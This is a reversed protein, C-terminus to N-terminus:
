YPDHGLDHDEICIIGKRDNQYVVIAKDDFSGNVNISYVITADKRPHKCDGELPNAGASMMAGKFDRSRYSEEIKYSNGDSYVGFRERLEETGITSKNIARDSFSSNCASLLICAIALLWPASGNMNRIKTM